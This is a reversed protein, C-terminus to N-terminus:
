RCQTQMPRVKLPTAFPLVARRATGPVVQLGRDRTYDRDVLLMAGGASSILSEGGVEVRVGCGAPIGKM